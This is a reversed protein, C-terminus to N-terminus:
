HAPPPARNRGRAPSPKQTSRRVPLAPPARTRAPPSPSTTSRNLQLESTAKSARVPFRHAAIVLLLIAGGKEGHRSPAPAPLARAGQVNGGRPFGSRVNPESRGSCCAPRHGSNRGQPDAAPQAPRRDALRRPPHGRARRDISARESHLRRIVPRRAPGIPKSSAGPLPQQERRLATQLAELLSQQAQPRFDANTGRGFDCPDERCSRAM